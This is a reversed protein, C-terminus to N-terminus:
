RRPLPNERINCHTLNRTNNSGTFTKEIRISYHKARIKYCVVELLGPAKVM